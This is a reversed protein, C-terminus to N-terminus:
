SLILILFLFSFFIIITFHYSFLDLISVISIFLILIIELFTSITKLTQCEIDTISRFLEHRRCSFCLRYSTDSRLSTVYITTLNSEAFTRM